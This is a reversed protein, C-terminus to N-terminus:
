RCRIMDTDFGHPVIDIFGDQRVDNWPASGWHSFLHDVDTMSVSLMQRWVLKGQSGDVEPGLFELEGSKDNEGPIVPLRMRYERIVSGDAKLVQDTVGYGGPDLTYRRIAGGCPIEDPKYPDVQHWDGQFRRYVEAAALRDARAPEAALAVLCILMLWRRMRRGM